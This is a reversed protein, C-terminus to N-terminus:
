QTLPVCNRFTPFLRRSFYFLYLAISAEYSVFVYVPNKVPGSDLCKMPRIQDPLRFLNTLTEVSIHSQSSQELYFAWLFM